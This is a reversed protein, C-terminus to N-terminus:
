KTNGTSVVEIPDEARKVFRNSAATAVTLCPPQRRPAFDIALELVVKRGGLASSM